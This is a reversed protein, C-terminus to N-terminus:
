KGANAMNHGLTDLAKITRNKIWKAMIPSILLWPLAPGFAMLASHKPSGPVFAFTIALFACLAPPFIYVFRQMFQVGGLEARIDIHSSSVTIKANSVGVIPNQQTNHMGPGTVDIEGDGAQDIRFGNAMFQVRAAEIAAEPSGRLPISLRHEM